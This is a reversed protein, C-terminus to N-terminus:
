GCNKASINAQSQEQQGARLHMDGAGLSLHGELGLGLEAERGTGAQGGKM